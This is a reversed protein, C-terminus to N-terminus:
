GNEGLQVECFVGHLFLLIYWLRNLHVSCKGFHAYEPAMINAETFKLLVLEYLHMEGVVISYALTLLLLFYPTHMLTQSIFVSQFLVQTLSNIFPSVLFYKLQSLFVLCSGFWSPPTSPRARVGEQSLVLIVVPQQVIM